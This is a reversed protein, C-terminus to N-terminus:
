AAVIAVQLSPLLDAPTAAEEPPQPLQQHKSGKFGQIPHRSHRPVSQQQEGAACSLCHPQQAPIDGTINDVLRCGATNVLLDQQQSVLVTYSWHRMDDTGRMKFQGEAVTFRM